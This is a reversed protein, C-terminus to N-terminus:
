IELPEHSRAELGGAAPRAHSESMAVRERRTGFGSSTGPGRPQRLVGSTLSDQINSVQSQHTTNNTGGSINLNPIAPVPPVSVSNTNLSTGFLSGFGGPTRRSSSAITAYGERINGNSLRSTLRPSSTHLTKMDPMSKKGRLSPIIEDRGTASPVMYASPARSLTHSVQRAPPNRGESDIRTVVAYREAGEGVSYHYLGLKQAILHVVRREKPTL